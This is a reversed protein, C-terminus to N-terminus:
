VMTFVANDFYNFNLNTNTTKSNQRHNYSVRKCITKFASFPSYFFSLKKVAGKKVKTNQTPLPPPPIMLLQNDTDAKIAKAFNITEYCFHM